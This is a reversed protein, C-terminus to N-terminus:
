FNIHVGKLTKVAVLGPEARGECSSLHARYVIGFEGVTPIFSCLLANDYLAACELVKDLAIWYNSLLLPFLSNTKQCKVYFVQHFKLWEISNLFGLLEM